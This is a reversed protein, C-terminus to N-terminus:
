QCPGGQWTGSCCWHTHDGRAFARAAIEAQEHGDWIDTGGWWAYTSANFQMLGSDGTRPNYAAPDFGSECACTSALWDPSVGHRAAADRVVGEWYGRDAAVEAPRAGLGAGVLGMLVGRRTIRVLGTRVGQGNM